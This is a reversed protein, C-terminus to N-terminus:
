PVSLYIQSVLHIVIFTNVRTKKYGEFHIKTVAIIIAFHAYYSHRAANIQSNEFYKISLLLLSLYSRRIGNGRMAEKYISGYRSKYNSTACCIYTVLQFNGRM